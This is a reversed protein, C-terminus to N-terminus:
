LKGILWLERGAETLHWTVITVDGKPQMEPWNGAYSSAKIHVTRERREILGERQLWAISRRTEPELVDLDGLLGRKHAASHGVQTVNM